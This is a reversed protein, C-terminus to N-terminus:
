ETKYGVLKGNGFTYCEKSNTNPEYYVWEEEAPISYDQCSKIRKAMPQGRLTLIDEPTLPPYVSKTKM